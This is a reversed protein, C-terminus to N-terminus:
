ILLANDGGYEYFITLFAICRAGCTSEDDRQEKDSTDSYVKQKLINQLNPLISKVSRGFSDYLYYKSNSDKCLVVWHSGPMNDPDLNIISSQNNKLKKFTNSSYVGKFKSGFLKKCFNNLQTDTTETPFIKILKSMITKYINEIKKEM